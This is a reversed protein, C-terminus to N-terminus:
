ELSDIRGIAFGIFVACIVLISVSFKKWFLIPNRPLRPIWKIASTTLNFVVGYNSSSGVQPSMRLIYARNHGVHLARKVLGKPRVSEYRLRHYVLMKPNYLVRYQAKIIRLALDTEEAGVRRWDAIEPRDGRPGLRIDYGGVKLFAERRVCFNMGAGGSVEIAENSNWYIGGVIWRLPIPLYDMNVSTLDVIANGSVAGITTDRAFLSMAREVWRSDLVVDDDLFAIVQGNSRTVAYNRASSAGHVIKQNELIILNNTDVSPYEKETVVLVEIDHFTQNRISALLKEIDKPDSKKSAPIIVSIILAKGEKIKANYERPAM